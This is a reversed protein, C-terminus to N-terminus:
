LLGTSCGYRLEGWLVVRLGWTTRRVTRCVHGPGAIIVRVIFSRRAGLVLGLLLRETIAVLCHAEGVSLVLKLNDLM